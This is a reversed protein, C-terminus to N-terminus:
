AIPYVLEFYYTGAGGYRIQVAGAAAIRASLPKITISNNAPVTVYLNRGHQTAPVTLVSTWGSVAASLTVVATVACWGLKQAVLITGSSIVDGDFTTYAQSSQLNATVTDASIKLRPSSVSIGSHDLTMYSESDLYTVGLRLTYYYSTDGWISGTYTTQIVASSNYKDTEYTAETEVDINSGRLKLGSITGTANIDQAFLSDTDIRGGNIKTTGNEDTVTLAGLQAVDAVLQRVKTTLVGGGGATSATESQGAAMIQTTVGGDFTHTLNMAPVTCSTGDALTYSILDGADLRLDGLFSLDAPRYTLGGIDTWIANLRSQTMYNNEITQGSGSTGAPTLTTTEGAGNTVTVALTSFTRDSDQVQDMEEYCDQQSLTVGSSTYWVFELKGARSIVANRGCLAALWGVVTRCTNGATISSMDVTSLTSQFGTVSTGLTIGSKSVVDSLVSWASTLGTGPLYDQELLYIMADVATVTTQGGRIVAESVRFTGIPLTEGDAAATISLLGDSFGSQVGSFVLTVTRACAAGVAIEEQDGNVSGSITMSILETTVAAGNLSIAVTKRGAGQWISDTLGTYM